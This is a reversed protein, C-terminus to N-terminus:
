QSGRVQWRYTARSERNARRREKIRDNENKRAEGSRVRRWMGGSTVEKFMTLNLEKFMTLSMEEKNEKDRCFMVGEAGSRTVVWSTFKDEGEARFKVCHDQPVEFPDAIEEGLSLSKKLLLLEEVLKKNQKALDDRESIIRIRSVRIRFYKERLANPEFDISDFDETDISSLDIRFQKQPDTLSGDGAPGDGDEDSSFARGKKQPAAFAYPIRGFIQGFWFAGDGWRRGDDIQRIGLPSTNKTCASTLVFSGSDPTKDTFCSSRLSEEKTNVQASNSRPGPRTFQHELPVIITTSDWEITEHVSSPYEAARAAFICLIM